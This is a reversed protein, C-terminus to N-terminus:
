HHRRELLPENIEYGEKSFDRVLPNHIEQGHIIIPETWTLLARRMSLWTPSDTPIQSLLERCTDDDIDLVYFLRSSKLAITVDSLRAPLSLPNITGPPDSRKHDIVELYPKVENPSGPSETIVLTGEKWQPLHDMHCEKVLMNPLKNGAPGAIERLEAETMIRGKEMLHEMVWPIIPAVTELKDALSADTGYIFDDEHIFAQHEKTEGWLASTIMNQLLEEGAARHPSLYDEMSLINFMLIAKKVDGPRTAVPLVERRLETENTSPNKYPINMARLELNSGFDIEEAAIYIRKPDLNLQICANEIDKKTAGVGIAHMILRAREEFSGIPAEIGSSRRLQIFGGPLYKSVVNEANTKTGSRQDHDYVAHNHLAWLHPFLDMVEPPYKRKAKMLEGPLCPDGEGAMSEIMTALLVPNLSFRHAVHPLGSRDQHMMQEISMRLAKDESYTVPKQGIRSAKAKMFIDGWAPTKLDHLYAAVLQYKGYEVAHELAAVVPERKGDPLDKLSAVARRVVARTDPSIAFHMDYGNEGHKIAYIKEYRKIDAQVREVYLEPTKMAMTFNTRAVSLALDKSHDARSINLRPDATRHDEVSRLRPDTQGILALRRFGPLNNLLTTIANDANTFAVGLTWVDEPGPKEGRDLKRKPTIFGFHEELVRRVEKEQQSLETSETPTIAQLDFTKPKLNDPFLNRFLIRHYPSLWEGDTILRLRHEPARAPDFRIEHDLYRFYHDHVEPDHLKPSEPIRYSGPTEAM